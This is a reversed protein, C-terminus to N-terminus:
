AEDEDPLPLKIRAWWVEYGSKDMGVSRMLANSSENEKHVYSFVYEAGESDLMTHSRALYVLTGLGRRRALPSVHLTGISGDRHTTCHALITDPPFGNPIDPDSLATRPDSASTAANTPTQAPPSRFVTTHALRTELYSPPHPM